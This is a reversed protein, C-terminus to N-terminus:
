SAPIGAPRPSRRGRPIRATSSKSPAVASSPLPAPDAWRRLDAMDARQYIRHITESAHNVLKMAVGLPAGAHLLRTIFTVRTCHFCLHEMGVRRFFHGWQRSPQPPFDLTHPRKKQALKTFLPRLSAPLPVTYARAIGGKPHPFRITGQTLDVDRLAIRTERLRCGTHIAIAWSHRMWEPERSLAEEITTQEDPTIAPKEPAPDRDLRLGVFPDRDLLERRTAELIVSRLVKFEAVACNRTINTGRPRRQATRWAIYDAAHAHRILDPGHLGHAALFRTIHRWRLLYSARTKPSRATHTLHAAVWTWGTGTATSKTTRTTTTAREMFTREACLIEASKTQAPDDHRLGTCQGTWRGQVRMRVYWYPSTPRQYLSAVCATYCSHLLGAM